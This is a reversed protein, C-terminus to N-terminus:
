ATFRLLRFLIIQSFFQTSCICKSIYWRSHIFMMWNSTQVISSATLSGFSIFNLSFSFFTSGSITFIIKKRERWLIRKSFLMIRFTWFQLFAVVLSYSYFFRRLFSSRFILLRKAVYMDFNHFFRHSFHLLFVTSFVSANRTYKTAMTHATYSLWCCICSFFKVVGYYISINYVICFTYIYIYIHVPVCQFAVASFVFRFSFIYVCLRSWFSQFGIM